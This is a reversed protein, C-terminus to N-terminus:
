CSSRGLEREFECCLYAEYSFFADSCCKCSLRVILVGPVQIVSVAIHALQVAFLM